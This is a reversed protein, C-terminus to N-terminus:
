SEYKAKLKELLKRERFETAEKQKAINKKQISEAKIRKAYESDTEERDYKLSLREDGWDYEMSIRPNQRGVKCNTLFVVAEDVSMGDLDSSISFHETILQKKKMKIKM